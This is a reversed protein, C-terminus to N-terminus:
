ESSEKDLGWLKHFQHLCNDKGLVIAVQAEDGGRACGSHVVVPKEGGAQAVACIFGRFTETRLVSCLYLFRSNLDVRDGAARLIIAQKSRGASVLPLERTRMRLLHDAIRKLHVGEEISDEVQDLLAM